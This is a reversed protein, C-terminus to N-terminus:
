RDNWKATGNRRCHMGCEGCSGSDCGSGKEKMRRIKKAIILCAALAILALVIIDAMGNM